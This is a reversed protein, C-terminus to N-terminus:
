TKGRRAIEVRALEKTIHPMGEGSDRLQRVQQLPWKRLLDSYIDVYCEHDPEVFVWFLVTSSFGIIGCHTGAVAGLEKLMAEVDDSKKYPKIWVRKGTEM